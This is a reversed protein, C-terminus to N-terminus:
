HYRRMTLVSTVFFGRLEVFTERSLLMTTENSADPMEVREARLAVYSKKTFSRPNETNETNFISPDFLV